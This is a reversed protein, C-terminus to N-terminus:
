KLLYFFIKGAINKQKNKEDGENNKKFLDFLNKTIQDGEDVKGFISEINKIKKLTKKGGERM